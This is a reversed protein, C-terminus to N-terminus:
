DANHHGLFAAVAYLGWIEWSWEHDVELEGYLSILRELGATECLEKTLAGSGAAVFRAFDLGIDDPEFYAKTVRDLIIDPVIGRMGIRHVHKTMGARNRLKEPTALSFAIFQRTLMPQRAEIGNQGRQRQMRSRAFSGYPSAFMNAKLWHSLEGPLNAEYVVQQEFLRTRWEPRLWFFNAPDAYRQARRYRKLMGRIAAPLFGPLGIRLAIPLAKRWGIVEADLSAARTFARLDWKEAYERYYRASGQLWEDGGEGNLFVRSGNDRLLREIGITMAGNHPIPVDHENAAQANYWDIGPQFLPVEILSRGVHESAARAYPLEYASTGPRGALTYGQLGPALLRGEAELDHAICYLASSDLGGSVAVSLPLHTRSTRRVVDILMARYHEAFEEDHKYTLKTDFPLEYYREERLKSGDFCLWHAQSLLRVGQWPTGERLFFQNSVVGALYDLNPAPQKDLAAIIAGIDSAVLLADGARCTYLPRLGQHDRAAFICHRRHDAIVFAFEGEIRAACGEGWQEYARLVLEADSRNRLVAGREILDRHLEEWNTLYGDLVLALSADENTHPQHSELSEATTHLICAGLAFCESIWRGTGDVARAAMADMMCDLRQPSAPGASFIAAIGTM